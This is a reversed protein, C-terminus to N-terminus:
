YGRPYGGGCWEEDDDDDCTCDEVLEGCGRCEDNELDDDDFDEDEDRLWM